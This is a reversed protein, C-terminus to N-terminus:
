DDLSTKDDEHLTYSTTLYVIETIGTRSSQCIATVSTTCIHQMEKALGITQNEIEERGQSRIGQRMRVKREDRNEPM